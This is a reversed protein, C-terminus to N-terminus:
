GKRLTDATDLAEHRDKAPQADDFKNGTTRKKPSQDSHAGRCDVLEESRRGNTMSKKRRRCYRHSSGDVLLQEAAETCRTRARNNRNNSGNVHNAVDGVANTANSTAWAVTQEGARWRTSQRRGGAADENRFRQRAYRKDREHRENGM